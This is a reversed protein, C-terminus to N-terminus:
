LGVDVHAMRRQLAVAILCAAGTVAAVVWFFGVRGLSGFVQSLVLPLVIGGVLGAAIITPAVRPDDGMRASATVYFGQFFMGASAGLAVFFLAPHWLAAGAALVASIGLALTLLQFAHLLHSAFILVLRIGLFGGFFVSLWQAAAVETEGAAILAAPGLGILSAEIGIAVVGFGLIVWDPRFGRGQMVAAVPEQGAAGAGLWILVALGAVLAFSIVPANGSAVFVLPAVIAGVGFSANLLSMMGPGRAGFARLVRPNFVVTSIGYGAGLVTASALFLSWEPALAMGAAGLGMVGLAVRPTIGAGRLFMFGVGAFCGVWHASIVLGAQGLDLGFGRAFAPLAPGYLSQGAGMLVFTLVGVILLGAHTKILSRM